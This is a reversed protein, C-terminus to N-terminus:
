WIKSLDNKLSKVKGHSCIKFIITTACVAEIKHIFVHILGSQDQSVHPLEQVLNLWNKVKQETTLYVM